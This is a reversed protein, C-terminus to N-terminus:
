VGLQPTAPPRDSRGSNSASRAYVPGRLIENLEGRPTLAGEEWQNFPHMALTAHVNAAATWMEAESIQQRPLALEAVTVWPRHPPISMDMLGPAEAAAIRFRIDGESRRLCLDRSLGDRAGRAEHVLDRETGDLPLLALHVLKRGMELPSRTYYSMAALSVNAGIAARRARSMRITEGVGERLLLTVLGRLRGLLGGRALHVAARMSSNFQKAGRAHNGAAGSTFTLDQVRGADDTIRVGVARQDKATDSRVSPDANSFRVIARHHAGARFPGAELERPLNTPVRFDATTTVYLTKRQFGRGPVGYQEAAKQLAGIIEEGEQALREREAAKDQRAPDLLPSLAHDGVDRWGSVTGSSGGETALVGNADLLGTPLPTVPAPRQSPLEPAAVTLDIGHLPATEVIQSNAM